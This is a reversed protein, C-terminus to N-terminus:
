CAVKVIHHRFENDIVSCYRLYSVDIQKKRDHVSQLIERERESVRPVFKLNMHRDAYQGYFKALSRAHIEATITFILTSHKFHHSFGKIDHLDPVWYTAITVFITFNRSNNKM